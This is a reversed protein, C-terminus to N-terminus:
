LVNVLAFWIIAAIGIFFSGAALAFSWSMVDADQQSVGEGERSKGANFSVAAMTVLSCLLAALFGFLSVVVLWISEPEPFMKEVVATVLLSSGTALTTVHKMLEFLLKHSEFKLDTPM